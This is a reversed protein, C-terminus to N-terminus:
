GRGVNIWGDMVILWLGSIIDLIWSGLILSQSDLALFWL